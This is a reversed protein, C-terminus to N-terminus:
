YYYQPKKSKGFEGFHFGVGFEVSTYRADQELMYEHFMITVPFRWLNVIFGAEAEFGKFDVKDPCNIGFGWGTCVDIFGPFPTFVFGSTLSAQKVTENGQDIYLAKIYGRLATKGMDGFMLGHATPSYIYNLSWWRRSDSVRPKIKDKKNKICYRDFYMGFGAFFSGYAFNKDIIKQFQCGLSLMLHRYYFMAGLDVKFDGTIEDDATFVEVGGGVFLSMYDLLEVTPGLSYSYLSSKNHQLLIDELPIGVMLHNFMGFRKTGIFGTMFGAQNNNSATLMLYRCGPNFELTINKNDFVVDHFQKRGIRVVHHTSDILHTSPTHNYFIGDIYVQKGVPNSRFSVCSSDPSLPQQSVSVSLSQNETKIIIYDSRLQTTNNQVATINLTQNQKEINCWEPIHDCEWKGEGSEINISELEGDCSFEINNQSVDLISSKAKQEVNIITETQNINIIINGTRSVPLTNPPCIVRIAENEKVFELWDVNHVKCTFDPSNTMVALVKDGGDSDFIVHNSDTKIKATGASQVVELYKKQKNSAVVIKATRSIASDNKHCTVYLTDQRKNANCWDPVSDYYWYDANTSVYISKTSQLSDFSITYKSLYFDLEAGSQTVNIVANKNSSKVKIVCTRVNINVNPKCSVLLGESKEAVVCWDSSCTYSWSINSNVGVFYQADKPEANFFLDKISVSLKVSMKEDCLKIYERLAKIDEPKDPCNLCLEFKEKAEKFKGQNFLKKGSNFREEFCQAM